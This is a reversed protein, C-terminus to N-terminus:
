RETDLQGRVVKCSDIQTNSQSDILIIYFYEKLNYSNNLVAIDVHKIKDLNNFIVEGEIPDYEHHSTTIIDIM